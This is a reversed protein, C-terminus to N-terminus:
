PKFAYSIYINGKKKKEKKKHTHQCGNISQNTKM